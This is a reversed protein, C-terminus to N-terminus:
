SEMNPLHHFYHILHGNTFSDFTKVIFYLDNFQLSLVQLLIGFIFVVM